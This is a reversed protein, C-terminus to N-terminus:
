PTPISPACRPLHSTAFTWVNQRLEAQRKKGYLFGIQRAVKSIETYGLTADMMKAGCHQAARNGIDLPSLFKRQWARFRRVPEPILLAGNTQRKKRYGIVSIDVASATGDATTAM